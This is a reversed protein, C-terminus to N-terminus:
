APTVSKFKQCFDELSWGRCLAEYAHTILRHGEPSHRPGGLLCAALGIREELPLSPWDAELQEQTRGGRYGNGAWQFAKPGPLHNVEFDQLAKELLNRM